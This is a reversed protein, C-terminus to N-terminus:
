GSPFPKAMYKVRSSRMEQAREAFSVRPLEFELLPKEPKGNYRFVELNGQADTQAPLLSFASLSSQLSWPCVLRVAVLAWLLLIM